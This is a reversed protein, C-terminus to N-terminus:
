DDLKFINNSIVLDSLYKHGYRSLHVPDYKIFLDNKNNIKCFEYTFDKLKLNQNNFIKLIKEQPILLEKKCNNKIQYAYPLLVFKHNLNNKIMFEKIEILKNEFELLNKDSDYLIRMSEYHRKTPDTFVGKLLVFLTSKERLFINTKLAFSNKVIKTQFSNKNEKLKNELVAGQYSVIDNLCLFIIIKNIENDFKQLNKKLIYFYSEINYGFIASNYLNNIKSNNRLIGIFTNKEEVGVGFTVSDGLVLTYNKEDNYSFNNLPIRFGYKDTKSEIGFVKFSNNPKSLIIGNESYFAQKDYGQLEVINLLRVVAELLLIIAIIVFFNILIIKKM